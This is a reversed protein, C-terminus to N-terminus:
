LAPCTHWCISICKSPKTPFFRFFLGSQLCAYMSLILISRFSVPPSAMFQIQRAWSLSWHCARTLMTVYRQTRYFAPFKMVVQPSQWMSNNAWYNMLVLVQATLMSNWQRQRAKCVQMYWIWKFHLTFSDSMLIHTRIKGTIIKIHLLISLCCRM